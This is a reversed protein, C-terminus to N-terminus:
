INLGEKKLSKIRDAVTPIEESSHNSNRNRRAQAVEGQNQLLTAEQRSFDTSNSNAQKQPSRRAAPTPKTTDTIKNKKLSNIAETNEDCTKKIEQWESDSNDPSSEVKAREVIRKTTKDLDSENPNNYITETSGQREATAIAENLQNDSLGELNSFDITASEDKEQKIIRNSFTRFNKKVEKM